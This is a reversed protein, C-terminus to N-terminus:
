KRVAAATPEYVRGDYPRDGYKYAHSVVLAELTDQVVAIHLEQKFKSREMQNYAQKWAKVTGAKVAGFKTFPKKYSRAM